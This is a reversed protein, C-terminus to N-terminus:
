FRIRTLEQKAQAASTSYPYRDIVQQLTSKALALDSTRALALATKLLADPAKNQDAFETTVRRYYRMANNFDGAAFYTEGIWFLANDALEGTPDSDFVDQFARRADAVRNKGYLMLANRYDTAIQAGILAAQPPQQSQPQPQVQVQRQVPAPAPAPATQAARVERETVSVVPAAPTPPAVSAQQQQPAARDLELRAIRDNLVDIRELLETLTTQLEGVRTENAQQPPPVFDAGDDSTSACATTLLLAALALKKM